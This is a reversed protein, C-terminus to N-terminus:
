RRGTKFPALSRWSYAPHLQRTDIGNAITRRDVMMTVLFGVLAALATVRPWLPRWTILLFPCISVVFYFIFGFVITHALKSPALEQSASYMGTRLAQCEIAISLTFGVILVSWHWLPRAFFSGARVGGRKLALAAGFVFLPLFLSDGYLFTAWRPRLFQGEPFAMLLNVLGFDLVLVITAIVWPPFDWLPLLAGTARSLTTDRFVM